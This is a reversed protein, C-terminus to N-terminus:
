LLLDLVVNRHSYGAPDTKTTAKNVSSHMGDRNTYSRGIVCATNAKSILDSTFQKTTFIFRECKVCLNLTDAVKTAQPGYCLQFCM